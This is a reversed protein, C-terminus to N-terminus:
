YSILVNKLQLQLATGYLRWSHNTMDIHFSNLINQLIDIGGNETIWCHSFEVYLIKLTKTHSFNQISLNNYLLTIVLKFALAEKITPFVSGSFYWWIQYQQNGHRFTPKWLYSFNDKSCQDSFWCMSTHMIVATHGICSGSNM